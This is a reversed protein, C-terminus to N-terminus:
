LELALQRLRLVENYLSQGAQQIAQATTYRGFSIRVAGYLRDGEIGMARLVHSAEITGTNCASGNAIALQDKLHIMLSESSVDDFSINIISALKQQEMLLQALHTAHQQDKELTHAALKFATAMGVIQHTPLTGPRLGYEQGGGQMLPMLRQQKRNRIYLCGIGKPGYCKHGSISLLDIPTQSLDIALKGVSQAADVHFYIKNYPHEQHKNQIAQAIAEINQIVGTENNVHMLSILFTEETITAILNDLDILGNNAPRLYTVNFGLTELYKCTDIVVKHETASTIIHKRTNKQSLALGKIALNNAETAGSTFVLDNAKCNFFNAIDARAKEVLNYAREGFKHQLSAPNAFEGELTLCEAMALAVEPAMPTTAAYDLYIPQNM